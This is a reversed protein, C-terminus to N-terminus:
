RVYQARFAEFRSYFSDTTEGFAASFAQRWEQGTGV